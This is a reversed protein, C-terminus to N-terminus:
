CRKNFAAATMALAKDVSVPPSWGLLSRTKDIDVQLSGCIREMVARKGLLAGAGSLLVPPVPVLRASKGLAVGLRRLLQTTSLDEGDSVLFAQGAARPHDLCITLLDVLNDLAVLSRRNRIAGLPLPVGRDLWVMMSHFNAKVGPGYVLPPRVIVVELGTQAALALLASEAELKSIAYADAPCLAAEATLPRAGTTSEGHVKVSSLFVFRKVGALAATQALKLTGNVNVARFAALPDTDTEHMVHVRAACHIIVDVGAFVDPTLGAGALDGSEIWRLATDHTARVPPRGNALSRVVGIVPYGFETALRQVLASGVFGSAGTVLVQM